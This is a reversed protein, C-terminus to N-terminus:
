RPAAEMLARQIAYYTKTPQWDVDYPMPRAPIGDNRKEVHRRNSYQNSLGWVIVAICAKQKLVNSIYHYYTDAVGQDRAATDGPLQSDDVDIETIMIKLGLDSVQSLFRQFKPGAINPNGAKLHSQLGLAQVPVGQKTLTTLWYLLSDRRAAHKPNDDEEIYNENMVLLANPDAAHATNFAISIYDPGLLQYWYAMASPASRLGHTYDNDVHIVENVVDWSQVKGAYHRVSKTIYDTLIQQANGKNVYSQFWDPLGQHWVLTTIRFEMNHQQAFHLLQDGKSFDYVLPRPSVVRFQAEWEPVLLDCQAPLVQDYIPDKALQGTQGVSGVLIGKSQGIQRWSPGATAWVPQQGVAFPEASPLALAGASAASAGYLFSRRSIKTMVSSTQHYLNRFSEPECVIVWIPPLLRPM